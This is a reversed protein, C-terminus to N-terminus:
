VGLGRPTKHRLFAAIKIFDPANKLLDTMHNVHHQRQQGLIGKIRVLGLGQGEV